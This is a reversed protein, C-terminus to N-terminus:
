ESPYFCRNSEDFYERGEELAEIFEDVESPFLASHVSFEVRNDVIESAIKGAKTEEVGHEKLTESIDPISGLPEGEVYFHFSNGDVDFTIDRHKKDIQRYKVQVADDNKSTHEVM